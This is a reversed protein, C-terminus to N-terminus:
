ANQGRIRFDRQKIKAIVREGNRQLLEVEPKLVLGEALFPGWASDFGTRAMECAEPLTGRFVVPVIGIGLKSAIDELADRQLWFSGIRADFLVFDVPGYSSGGKQIREGYGEGYLVVSEARALVESLLEARHVFLDELRHVLVAPLQAEDTKGGIRVPQDHQYVVRVNTGDIKETGVWTNNALYGFAPVSYEDTINGRDDRKFITDIKHYESM